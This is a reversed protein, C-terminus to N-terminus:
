IIHSAIAAIANDIDTASDRVMPSVGKTFIIRFDCQHTSRNLGITIKKVRRKSKMLLHRLRITIEHSQTDDPTNVTIMCALRSKTNLENCYFALIAHHTLTITYYEKLLFNERIEEPFMITIMKHDDSVHATILMDKIVDFSQASDSFVASNLFCHLYSILSNIVRSPEDSEGLMVKELHFVIKGGVKIKNKMFFEKTLSSFM